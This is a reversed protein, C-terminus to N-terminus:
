DFLRRLKTSYWRSCAVDSFRWALRNCASKTCIWGPYWCLIVERKVSGLAKDLTTLSMDFLRLTCALIARLRTRQILPSILCSSCSLVWISSSTSSSPEDRVSMSPIPVRPAASISASTPLGLLYWVLAFNAIALPVAGNCAEEPLISCWRRLLPPLRRKFRVM